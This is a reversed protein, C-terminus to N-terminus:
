APPGKPSLGDDERAPESAGEDIDSLALAAERSAATEPAPQPQAIPPGSAQPPASVAKAPERMAVWIFYAGAVFMPLSLVIGLTWGSDGLKNNSDRFLVEVFIRFFGYLILFIATILGPRHLAKAYRALVNLVLFLMLGELFAEYLQSPHRPVGAPHANPFIVGWPLTTPRGWIEGNIFNAIRGFFLGIPTALAVADGLQYMNLGVSRAYFIIAVVVGILGGHFSMGGEWYAFIKLPNDIYYSSNLVLGYFLVHGLRGGLIVGVAAWILLDDIQGKTAIGPGGPKLGWLGANTVLARVYLWGLALGALYAIAYWRIAFWGIEIAVPDINPFPM